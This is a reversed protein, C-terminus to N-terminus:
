VLHKCLHHAQLQQSSCQCTWTAIDMKYNNMSCPCKALEYWAKKAQIQFMMLPPPHGTFQAGDLNKSKNIEVPIVDSIMTYITQDLQPHHMFRLYTHKLHHWHSEAMMTMHLRSLITENSSRAWLQWMHPSYWSMWMYGWVNSLGRQKCFTYM